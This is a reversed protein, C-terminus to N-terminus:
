EDYSGGCFRDLRLWYRLAKAFRVGQTRGNGKSLYSNAHLLKTELIDAPDSSQSYIVVPIHAYRADAKLAQLSEIGLRRSKLNLDLFVIIPLKAGQELQQDLLKFMGKKDKAFFLEPLPSIEALNIWEAVEDAELEDDAVLISPPNKLHRRSRKSGRTKTGIEQAFNMHAGQM